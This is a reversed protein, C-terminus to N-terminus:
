AGSVVLSRLDCESSELIGRNVEPHCSEQVQMLSSQVTEGTAKDAPEIDFLHPDDGLLSRIDEQYCQRIAKDCTEWESVTSRRVRVPLADAFQQQTYGAQERAAKLNNRPM